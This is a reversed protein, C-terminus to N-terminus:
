YSRGFLCYMRAEHQCGVCLTGEPLSPQEFPICLTKAAGSLKALGNSEADEQENSSPAVDQSEEGSRVKIKSECDKVACWPSLVMCRDALGQLFEKWTMAQRIQKKVKAKAREFMDNQMQKLILPVSECLSDMSVTTKSDDDRRAVEVNQQELERQGIKLLLPVGKLAWHKMKWGANYNERLDATVRMGVAKLAAEFERCKARMAESDGKKSEIAILVGQLPAIRPPLVLGNDDGHVMIMVGITRTTLGWSNQWVLKKEGKEDEFDIKFMKAFNQGLCHSTAGQIGRGTAPIFAEVTTTYYGGAFKEKETKKGKIVPVALLDQYVQAYLDLIQLVEEAAEDYTAFASHGEQWLFERTRIFPTPHSFEWRVVNSWQNIKLPLDRHGRIWKAFAPYMITESTPRVAIPRELDTNGSRTVWAVEAAFGEVHDEEKCLASESVFLPFYTNKVGLAKIKADFFAQIFEWIEFSWPRLIYCGSIDYYEILECKTMIEKYWNPFDTNKNAIIALQQTNQAETSTKSSPAHSGQKAAPKSVVSAKPADSAVAAFDLIVLKNGKATIYKKLADATIGITATNTLPHVLLLTADHDLAKDLVVTVQHKTDNCIAIPTVAGAEVGLISSLNKDDLRCGPAGQSQLLKLNVQTDHKAVVLWFAKKKDKLFLNKCPIGPLEAVVKKLGEMDNVAVHRHVYLGTIGVSALESQTRAILVEQEAM